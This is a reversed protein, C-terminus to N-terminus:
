PVQLEAEKPSRSDSWKTALEMESGLLVQGRDQATGRTQAWHGTALSFLGHYDGASYPAFVEALFNLGKRKRREGLDELLGDHYKMM